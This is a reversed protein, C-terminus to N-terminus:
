VLQFLVCGIDQIRDSGRAQFGRGYKLVTGPDRPACVDRIACKETWKCPTRCSFQFGPHVNQVILVFNEGVKQQWVALARRQQQNYVLQPRRQEGLAPHFTDDKVLFGGVRSGEEWLLIHGNNNPLFCSAPNRVPTQKPCNHINEKLVITGPIAFINSSDIITKGNEENNWFVTLM